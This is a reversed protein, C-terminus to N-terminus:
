KSIPIALAKGQNWISINKGAKNDRVLPCLKMESEPFNRISFRFEIVDEIKRVIEVTEGKTRAYEWGIESNPRLWFGLGDREKKESYDMLFIYVDNDEKESYVFPERLRLMGYLYDKNTTAKFEIIDYKGKVKPNPSVIESVIKTQYQWEDSYGDLLIGQLQYALNKETESQKVLPSLGLLMEAGDPIGDGDTDKKKKDTKLFFEEVDMLGDSDSDQFDRISVEKYGKQLVWGSLFSKWNRDKQQKLALLIGDSGDFEQKKGIWYPNEDSSDSDDTLLSLLFERYKQKGLENYILYQIKFTKEYYMPFDSDKPLNSIDMDGLPLDTKPPPNKFGWWSQIDRIETDTLQLYGLDVLVIPLFSSVGESMWRPNQGFWWHGIEHYLLPIRLPKDKDPYNLPVLITDGNNRATSGDTLDTITFVSSKPARGFFNSVAPIYKAAEKLVAKAFVDKGSNKLFFVQIERKEGLVSIETSVSTMDARDFSDEPDSYPFLAFVGSTALLLAFSVLVIDFIFFRQLLRLPM